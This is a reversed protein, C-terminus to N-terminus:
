GGLALDIGTRSTVLRAASRVSSEATTAAGDLESRAVFRLCHLAEFWECAEDDIPHLDAYVRRLAAAAEASRGGDGAASVRLETLTAGVDYAADAIIAHQWGTLATVRQGLRRVTRPGLRGHCIVSREGGVPRTTLLREYATHLTPEGIAALDDELRRFPRDLGLAETAGCETLAAVAPAPDIAHLEALLAGFTAATRAEARSRLRPALRATLSPAPPSGEDEVFSMVLFDRGDLVVHPVAMGGREAAELLRAEGALSIPDAVVRVVQRAPVGDPLGDVRYEWLGGLPRPPSSFVISDDDFTARLHALLPEAIRLPRDKLAAPVPGRAPSM